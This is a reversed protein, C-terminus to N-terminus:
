SPYRIKIIYRNIIIGLILILIVGLIITILLYDYSHGGLIIAIPNGGAPPHVFNFIMMLFIGMSVSVALALAFPLTIYTFIVGSAATIIHGFFINKPQAFSSNPYGFLLVMTAGFSVALIYGFPNNLSILSLILIVVFAAISASLASIARKKYNNM